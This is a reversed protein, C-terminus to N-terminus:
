VAKIIGSLKAVNIGNRASTVTFDLRVPSGVLSYLEEINFDEPMKHLLYCLNERKVEYTRVDVGVIKKSNMKAPDFPVAFTLVCKNSVGEKVEGTDFNTTSWPGNIYQVGLLYSSFSDLHLNTNAM